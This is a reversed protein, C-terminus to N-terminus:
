PRVGPWRVRRRAARLGLWADHLINAATFRAGLAGVRFVPYLAAVVLASVAWAFAIDSVFHRGMAIRLVGAAVAPLGLGVVLVVREAGRCAGWAVVGIALALTAMATAEGSVFSCNRLCADSMEFPAVYPHPGGFAAVEAPRPRGWHSKLTWNAVLGPGAVMAALIFGWLRPPVRFGRGRAPLGSLLFALIVVGVAYFATRFFDRAAIALPHASLAAGLDPGAILATLAIDLDPRALFFVLLGLTVGLLAALTRWYILAAPAQGAEDPRDM